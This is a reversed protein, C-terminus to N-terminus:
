PKKSSNNKEFNQMFDPILTESFGAIFAFANILYLSKSNLVQLSNTDTSIISYMGARIILYSVVGATLAILLRSMSLIVAGCGASEGILFFNNIKRLISFYGGLTGMTAAYFLYITEMNFYSKGEKAASSIDIEPIVVINVLCSFIIMLLSFVFGTLIYTQKSKTQSKIEYDIREHFEKILTSNTKIAEESMLCIAEYKLSKYNPFGQVKALASKFSYFVPYLSENNGNKVSRDSQWFRM